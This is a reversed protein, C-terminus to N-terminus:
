YYYREPNEQPSGYGVCWAGYVFDSDVSLDEWSGDYAQRRSSTQIGQSYEATRNESSTWDEYHWFLTETGHGDRLNNVVPYSEVDEYLYNDDDPDYRERYSEANGNWQWDSCPCIVINHDYGSDILQTWYWYGMGNEPRLELSISPHGAEVNVKYQGYTTYCDLNMSAVQECLALLADKDQAELASVAASLWSQEEASLDEYAIYDPRYTFEIAGYANLPLSLGLEDRAATITDNEGLLAEAKDLMEIALQREGLATYATAAGVYAEPRKPDIEIAATFAIVAEEYNGEDLYRTGLDYQEQWQSGAGCACLVLALLLSVASRTFKRMSTRGRKGGGLRRRKGGLM